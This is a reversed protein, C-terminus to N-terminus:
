QPAPPLSIGIGAGPYFHGIPREGFYTYRRGEARAFDALAPVAHANDSLIVGAPALFPRVVRYEALEHEYTHNSDHIFLDVEQGALLRPLATTSDEIVLQYDGREQEGILWGAQRDIDVGILRGPVGEGRNRELARLLVASGLGDYVGTEVVLRPRLLRVMCYWGVRRGYLPTSRRDPRGRLREGLRRALEGDERLEQSLRRVEGVDRNLARALVEHLEEWNSLDYTFNFLEPDRLLFRAAELPKRRAHVRYPFGILYAKYAFRGLSTESVLRKVFAPPMRAKYTV